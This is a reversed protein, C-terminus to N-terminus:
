LDARSIAILGQQFHNLIGQTAMQGGPKTAITEEKAGEGRKVEARDRQRDRETERERERDREGDGPIDWCAGRWLGTRKAVSNGSSVGIAKTMPAKATPAILGISWGYTRRRERRTQEDAWAEGREKQREGEAERKGERRRRGCIVSDIEIESYENLPTTAILLSSPPM